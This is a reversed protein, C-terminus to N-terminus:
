SECLPVVMGAASQQMAHVSCFIKALKLKRYSSRENGGPQKSWYEYYTLAGPLWAAMLNGPGLLM